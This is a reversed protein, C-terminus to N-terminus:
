FESIQPNLFFDVFIKFFPVKPSSARGSVGLTDGGGFITGGYLRPVQGGLVGWFVKVNLREKMSFVNVKQLGRIKALTSM